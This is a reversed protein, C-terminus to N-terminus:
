VSDILLNRGEEDSALENNDTSRHVSILEIRNIGDTTVMGEPVGKQKKSDEGLNYVEKGMVSFAFAGADKGSINPFVGSLLKKTMATDIKQSYTFQNLFLSLFVFGLLKKM